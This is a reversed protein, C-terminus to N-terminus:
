EAASENLSGEIGFGANCIMVDLRGFREVAERVLRQMDAESTVDAVVALARGGLEEIERVLVSLRDARRASVVVAAGDHALRLARAPGIGASAGTIVVVRAASM